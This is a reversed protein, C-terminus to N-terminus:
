LKQLILRGLTGTIRFLKTDMNQNQACLTWLLFFLKNYNFHQM